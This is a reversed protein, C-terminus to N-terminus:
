NTILLFYKQHHHFLGKLLSDTKRNLVCSLAVLAVRVPRFIVISIYNKIQFTDSVTFYTAAM